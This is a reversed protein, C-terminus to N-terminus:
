INTYSSEEPLDKKKAKIKENILSEDFNFKEVNIFFSLIFSVLNLTGFLLFLILYANKDEVSSEIYYAIPSFLLVVFNAIFYAIGILEIYIDPGFVKMLYYDAFPYMGGNIFFSINTIWFFASDNTFTLCYIYMIFTFAGVIIILLIKLNVYDCLIGILLGSACEFIFKISGLLQLTGTDIKQTEGIERYISYLMAPGQDFLISIILFLIYKKSKFAIWFMKKNNEKDSIDITKSDKSDQVEKNISKTPSESELFVEGLGEIKTALEILKETKKEEEKNEKEYILIYSLVMAVFIIIIQFFLYKKVKIAVDYEYLDEDEDSEIENKNIMLEGILAFLFSGLSITTEIIGMIIGNHKPFWLCANITSPYYIIGNGIGCVVLAFLDSFFNESLYMIFYGFAYITFGILNIFHLSIKKGLRGSLISSSTQAIEEFPYYFSIHDISIFSNPNKGKIYSLQYISLTCFGFISGAMLSVIMAGILTSISKLQESNKLRKIFSEKVLIVGKDQSM